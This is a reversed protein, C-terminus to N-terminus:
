SKVWSKEIANLINDGMSKAKEDISSQLFSRKPIRVQKVLRIGGTGRAVGAPTFAKPGFPIALYKGKKPRIIAGFEHTPAYIVNTGIIGILRRHLRRVVSHISRRLTGSRVKLVQGSLKKARVYGVLKLMEIKFTREILSPLNKQFKRVGLIGKKKLKARM